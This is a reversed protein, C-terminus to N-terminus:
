KAKDGKGTKASTKGEGKSSTKADPKASKADGNDSPVVLLPDGNAQLPYPKEKLVSNVRNPSGSFEDILHYEAKYNDALWEECARTFEDFFQYKVSYDLCVKYASKGIQKLPESAEDLSAFYATRIEDDRKMSDPIPAARFEDVFKAWMEGVRAGGAIVWKPPPIPQLDIIKKYETSADDILPKKKQIWDKVKTQIHKIVAEKSGPGKYVPFKVKNVEDRKREAFFYVAEGVATLARGLQRQKTAADASGNTIAEAAAKPDKWAGVVKGYETKAAGDAKTEVLSRALLAHAQVKVDLAAQKDILGM